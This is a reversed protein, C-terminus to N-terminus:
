TAYIVGYLQLNALFGERMIGHITQEIYTHIWAAVYNAINLKKM